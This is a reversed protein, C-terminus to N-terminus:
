RHPQRASPPALRFCPEPRCFGAIALAAGKRLWMLILPPVLLAVLGTGAGVLVWLMWPWRQRYVFLAPTLGLMAAVVARQDAPPFSQLTGLKM